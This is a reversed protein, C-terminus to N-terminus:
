TSPEIRAIRRCRAPVQSNQLATPPSSPRGFRHPSRFGALPLFKQNWTLKSSRLAWCATRFRLLQAAQADKTASPLGGTALRQTSSRPVPLHLKVAGPGTTKRQFHQPRRPSLFDKGARSNQDALKLIGALRRQAVWSRGRDPSERRRKTHDRPRHSCHCFFARFEPARHDRVECLGDTLRLKSSQRRWQAELNATGVAEPRRAV